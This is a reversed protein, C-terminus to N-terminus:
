MESLADYGRGQFQLLCFGNGFPDALVAMRGWPKEAIPQEVKAGAAACTAVAAEIDAVIFDLHVPTWHRGYNREVGDELTPKTGSANALLDVPCSAGLLEGWLEKYRRGLKLGLAAGYFAIGKELDDVDICCRLALM